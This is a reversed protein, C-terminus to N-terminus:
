EGPRRNAACTAQNGRPQAPEAFAAPPPLLRYAPHYPMSAARPVHLAKLFLLRNLAAPERPPFATAAGAPRLHLTRLPMRHMRFPQVPAAHEDLPALSVPASTRVGLRPGLGAPRPRRLVAPPQWRSRIGPARHAGSLLDASSWEVPTPPIEMLIGRSLRARRNLLRRAAAQSLAGSPTSELFSFVLVSNPEQSPFVVPPRVEGGSERQFLEGLPTLWSAAVVAGNQRFGARPPATRHAPALITRRPRLPRIAPAAQQREEVPALVLPVPGAHPAPFAPELGPFVIVRIVPDGAGPEEPAAEIEGSRAPEFNVPLADLRVLRDSFRGLQAEVACDQPPATRSEFPRGTDDPCVAPPGAPPQEGAACGEELRRAAEQRAKAHLRAHERCCYRYGDVVRHLWLLRRGCYACTRM